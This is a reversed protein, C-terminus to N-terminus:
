SPPRTPARSSLMVPLAEVAKDGEAATKFTHCGSCLAQLNSLEDTGGKHKPIVHDVHSAPSGCRQCEGGAGAM